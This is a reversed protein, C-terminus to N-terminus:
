RAARFDGALLLAGAHGARARAAEALPAPAGPYAAMLRDALALAASWDAESRAADTRERLQRVRVDLLRERLRADLAAWPAPRGVAWPRMGRHFRLVRAPAAGAGRLRGSLPLAKPDANAGALFEDIKRLAEEEYLPKADPDPQSLARYLAAVAPPAQAATRAL